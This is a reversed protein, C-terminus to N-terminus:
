AITTADYVKVCQPRALIEGMNYAIHQLAKKRFSPAQKKFVIEDFYIVKQRLSMLKLPNLNHSPVM